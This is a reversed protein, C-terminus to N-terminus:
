YSLKAKINRAVTFFRNRHQLSGKFFHYLYRHLYRLYLVASGFGAPGLPRSLHLCHFRVHVTLAPEYIAQVCGPWKGKSWIWLLGALGVSPQSGTLVAALLMFFAAEKLFPLFFHPFHPLLRRADARGPLPSACSFFTHHYVFVTLRFRQCANRATEKVIEKTTPMSPLGSYTDLPEIHGISILIDEPLEKATMRRGISGKTGEQPLRAVLLIASM